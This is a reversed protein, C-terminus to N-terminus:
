GEYHGSLTVVRQVFADPTVGLQDLLRQDGGPDAPSRYGKVIITFDWTQVSGPEVNSFTPGLVQGLNKGPNYCQSGNSYYAEAEVGNASTATLLEGVYWGGTLYHVDPGISTPFLLTPISPITFGKTTSTLTLTFPVAIDTSPDFDSCVSGFPHGDNSGSTSPTGPQLFLDWTYGNAGTQHWTHAAIAAAKAAAAARAAAAAVEAQKESVSRTVASAATSLRRVAAGVRDAAAAVAQSQRKLTRTDKPITPTTCPASDTASVIATKLDSILAPKSLTAPDVGATSKADLIAAQLEDNARTCDAAASKFAREAKAHAAAAAARHQAPIVGLTVVLTIVIGLAVVGGASWLLALMRRSM